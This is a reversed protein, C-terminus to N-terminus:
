QHPSWLWPLSMVVTSGPVIGLGYFLNSMFRLLPVANCGSNGQSEAIAAAVNSINKRSAFYNNNIRVGEGITAFHTGRDELTIEFGRPSPRVSATVGNFKGVVYGNIVTFEGNDLSGNTHPVFCFNVKEVSKRESHVTPSSNAQPSPTPTSPTATFRTVKNIFVTSKVTNVVLCYGSGSPEIISVFEHPSTDSKNYLVMVGVYTVDIFPIPIGNRKAVIKVCGAVNTIEVKTGNNTVISSPVNGTYGQTYVEDVTRQEFVKTKKGPKVPSGKCGKSHKPADVKKGQPRDTPPTAKKGQPRDANKPKKPGFNRKPKNSKPAGPQNSTDVQTITGQNIELKMLGEDKIDAWSIPSFSPTQSNFINSM